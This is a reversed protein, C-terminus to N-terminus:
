DKLNLLRKMVVFYKRYEKYEKEVISKHVASLLIESYKQNDWSLEM